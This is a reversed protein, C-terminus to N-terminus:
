VKNQPSLSSGHFAYGLVCAGFVGIWENVIDDKEDYGLEFPSVMHILEFIKAM